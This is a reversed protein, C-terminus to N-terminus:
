RGRSVLHLGQAIAMAVTAIVEDPSFLVQVFDFRLVTYGRVVLRADARLDRRRDAAQHHAFGDVQLVLREGVLGDVRHGDIRVQQRVQVGISRLLGVFRTEVGSDSLLSAVNAYRAAATSRWLIRRLEAPDARHTRIASEWIALADPPDLCQAVHFLINVLDDVVAHRHVPRPGTGWHLRLGDDSLRSATRPVAVHVAADGGRTWLGRAAAATVCTLRGGVAVARRIGPDCGDAILWSRRLREVRGAAVARRMTHPSFGATRLDASHAAGGRARIASELRAPADSMTM